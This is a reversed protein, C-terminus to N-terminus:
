SSPTRWPWAASRCPLPSRLFFTIKMSITQQQLLLLLLPPPPPLLPLLLLPVLLLLLTLLQPLLRPLPQLLLM